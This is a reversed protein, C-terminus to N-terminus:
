EAKKRGGRITQNGIQLPTTTANEIVVDGDFVVGPGCLLAGRISLSRCSRLSPVHPFTRDLGDVYKCSKPDLDMRPPIGKRSSHLRLCSDAGLEYADSRVALLDGTTKVPAFRARTVEIAAAGEFCEIAAGMATELQIVAPSTADRPDLTKRNMIPPLPILGENANLSAKLAELHLWLNNTNFFGHRQIDQFDAEDEQPCQASERLLLRGDSRRRALHGGKKDSETRRTVEMAFPISREVFWSLIVPDLTAGLNDANSVFATRIGADLLRDLWGSGELCAYIDGHGPPCWELDPNEPWSAPALNGTLVKPVKNQMLEWAEPGGFRPFNRALHAATDASTSFSDMLLFAPADSGTQQRLWLIQRAILDLFTDRGRVPLLSKARDLGMSTGLGGNLKIVVTQRFLADARAPGVDPLDAARPLERAPEITAEPIMGSRGARLAAYSGEFARIAAGSLGASEMKERFCSFNGSDSVSMWALFLPEDRFFWGPFM